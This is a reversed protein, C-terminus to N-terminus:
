PTTQKARVLMAGDRVTLETISFPQGNLANAIQDNV